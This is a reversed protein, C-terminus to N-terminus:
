QNFLILFNSNNIIFFYKHKRKGGENVLFEFSDKDFINYHILRKGDNNAM